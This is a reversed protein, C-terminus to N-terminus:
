TPLFSNVDNLWSEEDFVENDTGTAMSTMVDTNTENGIPIEIVECDDEEVVTTAVTTTPTPMAVPTSAPIIKKNEEEGKEQAAKVKENLNKQVEVKEVKEIKEIVIPTVGLLKLFWYAGAIFFTACIVFMLLFGIGGFINTLSLFYANSNSM